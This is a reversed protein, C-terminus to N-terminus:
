NYRNMAAAVGEQMITALAESVETELDAIKTRERSGFAGLVYKELARGAAPRKVAGTWFSTPAIGIRIRPFDKGIGGIISKIGNHGGDGRGHSVKFTGLPLDIDDYMVVIHDPAAGHKESLYRVTDGSRNMYTEPLVYVVDNTMAIRANAHKDPSWEANAEEALREVMQRGVNHRTREYEAGPNGLGILYYPKM